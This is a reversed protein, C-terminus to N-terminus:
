AGQITSNGSPRPQLTTHRSTSSDQNLVSSTNGGKSDGPYRFSPLPPRFCCTLLLTALCCIAFTHYFLYRIDLLFDIHDLPLPLPPPPPPPPPPLPNEVRSSQALCIQPSRLPPVRYQQMKCFRTHVRSSNCKQGVTGLAHPM